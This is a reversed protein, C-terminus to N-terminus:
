DTGGQSENESSGRRSLERRKRAQIYQERVGPPFNWPVNVLSFHKVIEAPPVVLHEAIRLWALAVDCPDTNGPIRWKLYGWSLLEWGNSGFTLRFSTGTQSGGPVRQYCHLVTADNKDLEAFFGESCIRLSMSDLSMIDGDM